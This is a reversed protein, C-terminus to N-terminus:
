GAALELAIDFAADYAERESAVPVASAVAVGGVTLIAYFLGAPLAYTAIYLLPTTM